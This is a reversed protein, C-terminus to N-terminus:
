VQYGHCRRHMDYSVVCEMWPTTDSTQSTYHTVYHALHQEIIQVSFRNVTDVCSLTLFTNVILICHTPM